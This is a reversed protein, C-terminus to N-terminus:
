PAHFQARLEQKAEDRTLLSEAMAAITPAM